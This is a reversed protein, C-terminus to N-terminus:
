VAMLVLVSRMMGSEFLLDLPPLPDAALPRPQYLTACVLSPSCSVCPRFDKVASM